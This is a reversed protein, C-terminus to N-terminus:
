DLRVMENLLVAGKRHLYDNTLRSTRKADRNIIRNGVTNGLNHRILNDRKTKYDNNDKYTFITKQPRFKKQETYENLTFLSM